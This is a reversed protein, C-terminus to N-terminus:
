VHAPIKLTVTTGEGKTSDILLGFSDGFYLQLRENVNFLGISRRMGAEEEFGKFQLKTQISKLKAPEIGVGNDKIFIRVADQELGGQITVIGGSPLHELGHFVANEVLPQLCLRIIHHYKIQDPIDLIFLIRDGYRNKQISIYHLLHIMEEAITALQDNQRITYKFMEGLAIIMKSINDKGEVMAMANITDLTNYLFHPNIQAQLANLNAEQEKIGAIYVNNILERVQTVMLNFTKSLQAIEDSGIVPIESRFGNKQIEKMSKHLYKIPVVIRKSFLLSMFLAFIFGFLGIWMIGMNRKKADATLVNIDTITIYNWNTNVSQFYNVLVETGQDAFMGTPGSLKNAFIQSLLTDTANAGWRYIIDKNPNVIVLSTGDAIGLETMIENMNDMEIGIVLVGLEKNDLENYVKRAIAFNLSEERLPVFSLNGELDQPTLMLKMGNASLADQYWKTQSIAQDDRITSESNFYIGNSAMISVGRIGGNFGSFGIWNNLKIRLALQWSVNDITDTPVNNLMQQVDDLYVFYSIRDIQSLYGDIKENMLRLMTYNYKETQETANNVAGHYMIWATLTLPIAIVLLYSFMLKRQVGSNLWRLPIQGRSIVAKRVTRHM